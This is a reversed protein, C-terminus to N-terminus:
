TTWFAAVRPALAETGDLISISHALCLDRLASPCPGGDAVAVVVSHSIGVHRAMAHELLLQIQRIIVALSTDSIDSRVYIVDASNIHLCLDKFKVTICTPQQTEDMSNCATEIATRISLEPNTLSSLLAAMFPSYVAPSGDLSRLGAATSYCMLTNDPCRGKYAASVPSLMIDAVVATRCADVLVVLPGTWSLRIQSILQTVDICHAQLHARLVKHHPLDQSPMVTDKAALFIESDLQFGHSALFVFAVELSGSAAHVALHECFTDAAVKFNSLDVNEHCHVVGVQRLTCALAHADLCCSSLDDLELADFHDFGVSLAITRVSKPMATTTSLRASPRPRAELQEIRSALSESGSASLVSAARYRPQHVEMQSVDDYLQPAKDRPVFRQSAVLYQQLRQQTALVNLAGGDASSSYFRQHEQLAAAEDHCLPLQDDSQCSNQFGAVHVIGDMPVTVCDPGSHDGSLGFGDTHGAQLSAHRDGAVDYVSASLHIMSGTYASAENLKTSDTDSYSPSNSSLVADSYYPSSYRSSNSAFDSGQSQPLSETCCQYGDADSDSPSNSSLVAAFYQRSDSLLLMTADSHLRSNSQMSEEGNHFSPLYESSGVSSSAGSPDAAWQVAAMNASKAYVNSAESCLSSPDSAWRAAASYETLLVTGAHSAMSPSSGESYPGSSSSHIHTDSCPSSTSASGYDDVLGAPPAECPMMWAAPLGSRARQWGSLSDSSNLGDSGYDDQERKLGDIHSDGQKSSGHRVFGEFAAPQALLRNLQAVLTSESRQKSPNSFDASPKPRIWDLTQVHLGASPRLTEIASNVIRQAPEIPPTQLAAKLLPNPDPNQAAEKSFSTLEQQTKGRAVFSCRCCSASDLMLDLASQVQLSCSLPASGWCAGRACAQVCARVCPTPM